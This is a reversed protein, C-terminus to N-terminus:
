FSVLDELKTKSCIGVDFIKISSSVRGESKLIGVVAIQYDNEGSAMDYVHEDVDITM